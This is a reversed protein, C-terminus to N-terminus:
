AREKRKVRGGERGGMGGGGERGKVERGRCSMAYVGCVFLCVVVIM